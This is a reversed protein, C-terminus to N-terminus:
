AAKTDKGKTERDSSKSIRKKIGQIRKGAEMVGQPRETNTKSEEDKRKGVNDGKIGLTVTGGGSLRLWEIFYPAYHDYGSMYLPFKHRIEPNWAKNMNGQLKFMLYNGEERYATDELAITLYLRLFFKPFMYWAMKNRIEWQHINAIDSEARLKNSKERAKVTIPSDTPLIEERHGIIKFEWWWDKVAQEFTDWLILFNKNYPEDPIDERSKILYRGLIKEAFWVLPSLFKNKFSFHILNFRSKKENFDKTPRFISQRM